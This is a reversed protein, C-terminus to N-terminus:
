GITFKFTVTLVFRTPIGRFVLPSYRWQKLAEIAANDLLAGRSRLVKVSEVSGEPDVVAELIVLGDLQANAALPSYIPEVRRLLNPAKISGGIRVPETAVAPLPVPPAPPVASVIGGVVGGTVGGDVGGEVGALAAVDRTGGRETQLDSPADVPATTRGATMVPQPVEPQRSARPAPLPPPPVAPAFPVTTAVFAMTTPAKPSISVVSTLSVIILAGVAAAHAIISVARSGMSPELLPRQTNEAILDFM